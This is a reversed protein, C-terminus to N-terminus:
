VEGRLTKIRKLHQPQISLSCCIVLPTQAEEYVAIDSGSFMIFSVKELSGRLAPELSEIDMLKESLNKDIGFDQSPSFCFMKLLLRVWLFNFSVCALSPVDTLM